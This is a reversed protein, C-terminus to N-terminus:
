INYAASRPDRQQAFWMRRQAASLPHPGPGLRPFGETAAGGGPGFGREALLSRIRRQRAAAVDEPRGSEAGDKIPSEETM